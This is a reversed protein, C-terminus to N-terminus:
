FGIVATIVILSVLVVLLVYESFNKRQEEQKVMGLRRARRSRM